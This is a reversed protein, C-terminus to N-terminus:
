RETPSAPTAMAALWSEMLDAYAPLRSYIENALDENYTHVTLNRDQAMRLATLGAEESLLGTRYSARTVSTPSAFELDETLRLYLQAAKWVAEYTYEFRHISADRDMQTPEAALAQRFTQSARAAVQLREILRDM